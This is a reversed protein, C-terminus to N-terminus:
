QRTIVYPGWLPIYACLWLKIFSFIGISGSKQPVRHTNSHSFTVPLCNTGTRTHRAWTLMLALSIVESSVELHQTNLHYKLNSNSHLYSFEKSYINCLINSRDVTGHPCKRASFKGNAQGLLDHWAEVMNVFRSHIMQIKHKFHSTHPDPYLLNILRLDLAESLKWM